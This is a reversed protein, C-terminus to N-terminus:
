WLILCRFSRCVVYSMVLDELPSTLILTGKKRYDMKTRSGEWGFFPHSLASNPSRSLSRRVCLPCQRTFITEAGLNPYHNQVLYM